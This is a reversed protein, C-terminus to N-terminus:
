ASLRVSVFECDNHNWLQNVLCAETSCGCRFDTRNAGWLKCPLRQRKASLQDYVFLDGCLNKRNSIFYRFDTGNGGWLKCPLQQQKATLQDYTLSTDDNEAYWNAQCTTLAQTRNDYRHTDFGM